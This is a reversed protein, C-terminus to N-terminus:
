TEIKEATRGQPPTNPLPNEEGVVAHFLGSCEAKEETHIKRAYPNAATEIPVAHFKTGYQSEAEKQYEIHEIREQTMHISLTIRRMLQDSGDPSHNVFNAVYFTIPDYPTTVIIVDCALAKDAYRSPAMVQAGYPDMIRLLDQYPIVNPRLEDIILTHEGKYNQFLDRSSGTIYYSQGLKEAYVRAMRTKGVGAVGYIWIVKVKRGQAAMEQRWADALNQLRKRWVDEIQRKYRGYQAGTMQREVEDKSMIGAYLANLLEDVSFKVGNKANYHKIDLKQEINQILAAFDFNATVESPDYQHKGEARAKATRHLLYAFGNNADADWKKLYQPKDGLIKAVADIYRANRFCLMAHIDTEKPNGNEDVEKDHVIVAFRTPNLKKAIREALAEKSQIGAPLYAIKQAFMMNKCKIPANSKAKTDEKM